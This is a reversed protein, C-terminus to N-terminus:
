LDFGAEVASNHQLNLKRVFEAVHVVAASSIRLVRIAFISLPGGLRRPPFRSTEEVILCSPWRWIWCTWDESQNFLSTTSSSISISTLKEIDVKVIFSIHTDTTLQYRSRRHKSGRAGLAPRFSVQICRMKFHMKPDLHHAVTFTYHRCRFLNRGNSCSPFPLISCTRPAVQEV